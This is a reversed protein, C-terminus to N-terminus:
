QARTTSIQWRGLIDTGRLASSWNRNLFALTSGHKCLQRTSGHPVRLIASRTKADTSTPRTRTSGKQEGQSVAPFETWQCHRSGM